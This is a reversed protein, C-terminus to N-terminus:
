AEAAAREAMFITASADTVTPRCRAQRQQQRTLSPQPPLDYLVDEPPRARATTTAGPEPKPKPKAAAQPWPAGVPKPPQKAATKLKPRAAPM